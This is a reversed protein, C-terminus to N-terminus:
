YQYIIKNKFKKKLLKLAYNIRESVRRPAVNLKESIESVGWGEYFRLYLVQKYKDPLKELKRRMENKIEEEAIKQPAHPDVPTEPLEDMVIEKKSQTEFYDRMKNLAIGSAYNRLTGKEPDFKGERLKILAALLIDNLVDQSDEKNAGIKKHVIIFVIPRIHCMVENEAETDGKEIKEVWDREQEIM